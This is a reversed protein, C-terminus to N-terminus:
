VQADIIWDHGLALMKEDSTILLADEHQAQALIMRDIPDGSEFDLFSFTETAHEVRLPVEVFGAAIATHGFGSPLSILPRGNKGLMQSKLTMEFVSASSFCVFNCLDIRNRAAQGLRHPKMLAWYLANTDLLLKM